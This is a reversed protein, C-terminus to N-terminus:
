FLTSGITICGRAWRNCRFATEHRKSDATAMITLQDLRLCRFTPHSAPLLMCVGAWPLGAHIPDMSALSSGFDKVVLVTKVIRDVKERILVTKGSLTNLRWQKEEMMALKKAVILSMQKEREVSNILGLHSSLEMDAESSLIKEFADVLGKHDKRLIDYAKDWLSGIPHTGGGHCQESQSDAYAQDGSYSSHFIRLFFLSKSLRTLCASKYELFILSTSIQSIVIM